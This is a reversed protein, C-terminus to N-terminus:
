GAARALAVSFRAGTGPGDSEAWIRGGMLEVLAKAIALGIGSGGLARSRSPDARYFREFVRERQEDTLGPGLDVVSVVVEGPTGRLQVTVRTGDATYRVANSLLNDLVEVLRDRDASVPPVAPDADVRLVIEREAASGAYREIAASVLAMVDVPEIKLALQNAEARWLEQLDNVIRTLRATEDRLLKWTRDAPKILGDEIGELYGDLTALPTRLEHAVDGVLQLRRRETSELSAAMRNFSEALQGIEDNSSVPVREAYRGSAIRHSADALRGIPRSIRTSLAISTVTATIAAVAIAVVLAGQIADQFAARVLGAMMQSMGDVGSMAHGMAADFAGPAVYGVALFLASSGIAVM